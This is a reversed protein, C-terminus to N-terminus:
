CERHNVEGSPIIEQTKTVIKIGGEKKRKQCIFLAKVLNAVIEAMVLSWHGISKHTSTLKWTKLENFHQLQALTDM